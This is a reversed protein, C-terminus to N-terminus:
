VVFVLVHEDPRVRLVSMRLPAKSVIDFGEGTVRAIADTLDGDVDTVHLDIDDVMDEAPIIIQIPLANVM